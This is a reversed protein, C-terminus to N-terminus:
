NDEHKHSQGWLLLTKPSHTLLGYRWSSLKRNDRCELDLDPLTRAGAQWWACTVLACQTGKASALWWLAGEVVM